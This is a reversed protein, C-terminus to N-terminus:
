GSHYIVLLLVKCMHLIKCKGSYWGNFRRMWDKYWWLSLALTSTHVEPHTSISWFCTDEHRGHLLSAKGTHIQAKPSYSFSVDQAIPAPQPAELFGSQHEVQRKCTCMDPWPATEWTAKNDINLVLM